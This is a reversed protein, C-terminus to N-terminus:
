DDRSKARCRYSAYGFTAEFLSRGPPLRCVWRIVPWLRLLLRGATTDQFTEPYREVLNATLYEVTEFHESLMRRGRLSSLYFAHDRYYEYRDRSLVKSMHIAVRRPLLPFGPPFGHPDIPFLRNPFSVLFTGGPDLVRRIEAVLQDKDAVHELVQNCVIYNFCDDPFPLRTGDAALYEVAELRPDLDLDVAVVTGSVNELHRGDKTGVDLVLDDDALEELERYILM